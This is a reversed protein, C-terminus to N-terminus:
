AKVLLHVIHTFGGIWELVHMPFSHMHAQRCAGLVARGNTHVPPAPRPRPLPLNTSRVQEDRKSLGDAFGKLGGGLLNVGFKWISAKTSSLSGASSWIRDM